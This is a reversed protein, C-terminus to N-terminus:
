GKKNDIKMTLSVRQRNIDVELVQVAVIDGIAVVEMPHKVYKNTLQSIHVLGDQKVGIDVFAGFDVVNRITGQLIMGPKLSELTTIDQRLLPKSLEERPDRGPKQLAEIIDKVTPAGAGLKEAVEQPILKALKEKIEPLKQSRLDEKNHGILSLIQEALAYSEPHVPTTEIPNEGDPLRLFGACQVFTQEGLRPVKKLQERSKFKGKTERFKIINKAVNAKLGSVYQLLAASATNLDVGVANVASEVVGTLSQDLAKPNVDHQYQGVGIAKPEIKVLEALPDQLRRAISIASRQTLDLTPFEDKAIPSASYVSAGAESVIIYYIDQELEKILEAVLAETERSATGNGITIIDIAYKEIIAKIEKKAADWKNQPAHPYVVGVEELKGIEDVVALKCGTRYSPDIGLVKKGRVPPQLLLNKLNSGFVKIAQEEGLETLQNRLEREISPAILRKYSDSISEIVYSSWLSNRKTLYKVQMIDVLKVQPADIKINLFEEKEGRNLALIRHPPINQLPEMYEYYMQYPNDPEAEIKVTAKAIVKGEKFTLARIKKRIEADDSITEAVIDMAGNLADEITAVGKEESIFPKVVEEIPTNVQAFSLMMQALPALGREKAVSARTKRKQKYPRYLDEIEQLISSKRIAEELEPTLKQQEEIIRIVEEKRDSLNRLYNVRDQIDRLHDENLEGTAEKRYRAIFPVTNGEDLLEVAKKVQTVKLKLEKAVQEILQM